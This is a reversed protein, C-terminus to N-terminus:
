MSRHGDDQWSASTDANRPVTFRDIAEKEFVLALSSGGYSFFGLEAGKKVKDGAKV